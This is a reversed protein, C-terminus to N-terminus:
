LGAWGIFATSSTTAQNRRKPAHRTQGSRAMAFRGARTRPIGARTSYRKATQTASTTTTTPRARRTRITSSSSGHAPERRGGEKGDHQPVEDEQEGHRGCSLGEGPAQRSPPQAGDGVDQGGRDVAGRPGEIAADAEGGIATEFEQRDIEARGTHRHQPGEQEALQ